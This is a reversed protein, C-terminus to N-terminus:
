VNAGLKRVTTAGESGAIPLWRLWVGFVQILLIALFFNPIGMGLVALLMTGQDVRTNRKWAALVGLPIAIAYTVAAAALALRLTNLGAQAIITTIPEGSYLSVGPRGSFLNGMFILYQDVLPKDLYLRHRLGEILGIRNLPNLLVDGPNGPAVRLGYFIILSALFLLLVAYLSRRLLFRGM